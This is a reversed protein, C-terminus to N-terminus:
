RGNSALEWAGTSALRYRKNLETLFPNTSPVGTALSYNVGSSFKFVNRTPDDNPTITAGGERIGHVTQFVLIAM